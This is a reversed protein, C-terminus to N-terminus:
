TKRYVRLYDMFSTISLIVSILFIINAARHLGSFIPAAAGLRRASVALLAAVGAIMYAVAKIKGGWRAGQVINKKMMLNRLFQIGLERYLVLLLLGAPLIDDIVFCLFYTIRVMVDAFPDFLKGFDSVEKRVRAIKGDLLDTIESGILLVWLVPVTWGLDPSSEPVWTPFLYVAFFCPALLIRLATVKDALTM